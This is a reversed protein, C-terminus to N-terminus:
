AQRTNDLTLLLDKVDRPPEDHWHMAHRVKWLLVLLPAFLAAVAARRRSRLDRARMMSLALDRIEPSADWDEAVVRYVERRGALLRDLASTLSGTRKRHLGLLDSVPAFRYGAAALRLWLEWDEGVWLREDYGGVAVLSERRAAVSYYVFNHRLLELLFAHPDDPVPDPPNQAAVASRKRVRGTGEDFVWADACAVAAAPNSDLASAMTELYQPLWLDDSDLPCVVPAQALSIGQNRAASPGRNKSERVVSIRPDAFAEAVDATGDGSCDDVVILEWDSRTQGRVSEIAEGITAANDHAPMVVSFAPSSENV